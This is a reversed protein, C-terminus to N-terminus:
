SAGSPGQPAESRPAEGAEQPASRGENQPQLLGLELAEARNSEDALFELLRIPDNEFRARTRAPLAAFAADASMVTELASQYDLADGLDAYQPVGSNVHELLGTAEWRALVLNYDCEEIFNQQTLTPEPCVLDSDSNDYVVYPMRIVVREPVNKSM